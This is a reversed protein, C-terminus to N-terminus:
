RFNGLYDRVKSIDFVTLCLEVHEHLLVPIVEGYLNELAPDSDVDVVELAVSFEDLVPLLAQEMDHCLHCYPRSLLTLSLM